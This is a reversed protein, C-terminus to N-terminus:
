TKEIADAVGSDGAKYARCLWEHVCRTLLAFHQLEPVKVPRSVLAQLLWLLAAILPPQM